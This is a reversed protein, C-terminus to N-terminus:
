QMVAGAAQHKIMAKEWFYPVLAKWAEEGETFTADHNIVQETKKKVKITDILSCQRFGASHIEDLIFEKWPGKMWEAVPTNFGIKAKRRAVEQPMYRELADRVIAKTFGNNLKSEWPLSFSYSVLRHDMFPMRIEVGSAMAFRDYNRLLTPLITQHFIKYLHANFHGFKGKSPKEKTHLGLFTKALHKSFRAAGFSLRLYKYYRRYLPEQLPQLQPLNERLGHYTAVINKMKKINLGADAFALYIDDGYGALLEDTGHGDISVVVGNARVAKYVEMAPIPSTLYLEEFHYLYQFLNDIGQLPDIPICTVPIGTYEGVKKAYYSEDLYSGPFTAVFAHQWDKSLRDGIETKGIHAMTCIAASSDLGGSLATGIPVDSRMRIRCADIFLEKFKEVQDAYKEPPEELHEMTNWFRILSLDKEGLRFYGFHGAPFRRIGEVLCHETSEYNLINRSCWDFHQSPKVESLFPFIAKMESAIVFYRDTLAYFLPKKGFRDRSLFLEKKKNDWIALAWMGNFKKLCHPGWQLYAALIVETDSESIFRHGLSQLEKRVELFNYIEGNFTITLHEKIMPQKGYDSLDLISLRRHGLMMNDDSWIGYGDPGRHSIRDLAETFVQRSVPPSIGLIGCM